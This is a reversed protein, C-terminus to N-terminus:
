QVIEQTLRCATGGVKYARCLEPRTDYIGCGGDPLLHKCRCTVWLMGHADSFCRTALLDLQLESLEAANFTLGKCCKGGCEKCQENM